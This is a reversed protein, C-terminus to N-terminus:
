DSNDLTVHRAPGSRGSSILAGRTKQIHKTLISIEASRQLDQLLAQSSSSTPVTKLALPPLTLTQKRFSPALESPSKSSLPSHLCEGQPSLVWTDPLPHCVCLLLPLLQSSPLFCSPWLQQWFQLPIKPNRGYSIDLIPPAEGTAWHYLIWRGIWSIHTQDRPRASGRFSSM